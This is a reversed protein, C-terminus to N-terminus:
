NAKLIDLTTKILKIHKYYIDRAENWNPIEKVLIKNMYEKNTWVEKIARIIDERTIAQKPKLTANVKYTLYNMMVLSIFCLAIHVLVQKETSFDIPRLQLNEKWFSINNKIKWQRDYVNIDKITEKSSNTFILKYGKEELSKADKDDFTVNENVIITINKINYFKEIELVSSVLAKSDVIKNKFVKYHIPIGNKDSIMGVIFQNNNLDISQESESNIIDDFCFSTTDFWLIDMERDKNEIIAENLNFLIQDKNEYIYDLSNNFLEKYFALGDKKNNKLYTQMMSQHKIIDQFIQNHVLLNLDNNKDYNSKRFLDFHKFLESVIEIGPYEEFVQSKVDEQQTEENILKLIDEREYHLPAEKLLGKLYEIPNEWKEEYIKLNGIGFKKIYGPKTSDKLCASLYTAYQTTQKAIVWALSKNVRKRGRVKKTM